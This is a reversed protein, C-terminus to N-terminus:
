DESVVVREPRCKAWFDTRFAEADLGNAEAYADTLAAFSQTGLGFLYAKRGDDRIASLVHAVAIESKSPASM